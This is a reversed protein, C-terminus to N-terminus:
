KIGPFLEPENAPKQLRFIKYTKRKGLIELGGASNVTKKIRYITEDIGKFIQNSYFRLVLWGSSELINDRRKDRRVKIKQEHWQASDCEVNINREKCFLAFDLCYRRKEENVFYQREAEIGERKFEQWLTEEIPSEHFLDNIEQANWLKGPTTQIFVIRRWRRSIIPQPLLKLPSIEIKFYDEEARPHAVDAPFLEKRKVIACRQIETYYRVRFAEDEFAKPQYFAIYRATFNRINKPASKVPIRYWHQEAAIEFDEKNKLIAVLVSKGQGEKM